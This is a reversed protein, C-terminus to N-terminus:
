GRYLEEYMEEAAKIAVKMFEERGVNKSEVGFLHNPDTRLVKCIKMVMEPNIPKGNEYGSLTSRSIFLEEALKSQSLNAKERIAKINEGIKKM